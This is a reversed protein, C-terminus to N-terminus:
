YKLKKRSDRMQMTDGPELKRIFKVAKYFRENSMLGEISNLNLKPNRLMTNSFLGHITKHCERCIEETEDSERRTELHHRQMLRDPCQRMCLPCQKVKSM